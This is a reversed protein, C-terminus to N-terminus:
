DDSLDSLKANIIEIDDLREKDELISSFDIGTKSISQRINELEDKIIKKTGEEVPLIGLKDIILGIAGTVLPVIPSTLELFLRKDKIMKKIIPAAFTLSLAANKYDKELLYIIGNLVDAPEYLIGWMNLLNHLEKFTKRIVRGAARREADDKSMGQKIYAHVLGPLKIAIFELTDRKFKGSAAQEAFDMWVQTIALGLASSGSGFLNYLAKTTNLEADFDDESKPRVQSSLKGGMVPPDLSVENLIGRIVHRLHTEQVLGMSKLYNYIRDNIPPDYEGEPWGGHSTPRDLYLSKRTGLGYREEPQSGAYRNKRTKKM